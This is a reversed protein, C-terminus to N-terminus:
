GEDIFPLLHSEVNVTSNELLASFTKLLASQHENVQPLADFAIHCLLEFFDSALIKIRDLNEGLADIMALAVSDTVLAGHCVM